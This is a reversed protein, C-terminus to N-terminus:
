LSPSLLSRDTLIKLFSLVHRNRPVNKPFLAFLKYPIPDHQYSSLNLNTHRIRALYDPFFGIGLG